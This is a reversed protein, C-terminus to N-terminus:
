KTRGKTSACGRSGDCPPVLVILTSVRRCRTLSLLGDLAIWSARVLYLASTRLSARRVFSCIHACPARSHSFQLLLQLWTFIIIMIIMIIMIVTIILLLPM